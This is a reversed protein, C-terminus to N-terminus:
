GIFGGREEIFRNAYEKIEPHKSYVVGNKKSAYRCMEEKTTFGYCHARTKRKWWYACDEYTLKFRM